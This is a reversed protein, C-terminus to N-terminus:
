TIIPAPTALDTYHRLVSQVVPTRDWASALSKEELRHGSRSQPGGLRRDLPYQTDKGWPLARGPRPASWEGGDLASNFFSYSSYRWEGLRWWPTYRSQKLMSHFSPYSLRYLTQSCVPHGPNLGQCLCVTKGTAETDLGARLGVWGGTCHTGPTTEGPYLAVPAHPQGRM